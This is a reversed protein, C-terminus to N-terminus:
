HESDAPALLFPRLMKNCRGQQITVPHIFHCFIAQFRCYCEIYKIMWYGIGRLASCDDSQAAKKRKDPM